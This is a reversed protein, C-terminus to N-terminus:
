GRPARYGRAAPKTRALGPQVPLQAAPEAPVGAPRAARALSAPGPGQSHPACGIRPLVGSKRSRAASVQRRALGVNPKGAFAASRAWARSRAGPSRVFAWSLAQCMRRLGRQQGQRAPCGALSM